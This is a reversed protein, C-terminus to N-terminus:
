MGHRWRYDFWGFYWRKHEILAMIKRSHKRFIVIQRGLAGTNTVIYQLSLKTYLYYARMNQPSTCANNVSLLISVGDFCEGRHVRFKVSIPIPIRFSHVIRREYILQRVTVMKWGFALLLIKFNVGHIIRGIYIVYQFNSRKLKKSPGDDLTSNTVSNYM